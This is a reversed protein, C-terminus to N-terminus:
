VVTTFLLLEKSKKRRERLVRQGEESAWYANNVDKIKQNKDKKVKNL